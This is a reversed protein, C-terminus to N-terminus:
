QRPVLTGREELRMATIRAQEEAAIRIEVEPDNEMRSRLRALMEEASLGTACVIFIYGYRDEYARNRDALASLVEDSGSYVGAQERESLDWTALVRQRLKETDGIKPHHGFAELWDDKSLGFWEERAASLLAQQSGFPRRALMRDVWRSSGCARALLPRAEDDSGLDIRRWLEM